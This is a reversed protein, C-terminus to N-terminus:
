ARISHSVQPLPPFRLPPSTRSSNSCPMKQSSLLMSAPPIQLLPGNQSNLNAPPSRAIPSSKTVLIISRTCQGIFLGFFRPKSPYSILYVGKCERQLYLCKRYARFAHFLHTKTGNLDQFDHKFVFLLTEFYSDTYRRLSLSQPARPEANVLSGTYSFCRRDGIWYADKPSRWSGRPGVIDVKSTTRPQPVTLFKLDRVFV